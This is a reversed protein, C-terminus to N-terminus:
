LIEVAYEFQCSVNLLPMDKLGTLKSKENSNKQRVNQINKNLDDIENDLKRLVNTEAGINHEKIIEKLVNESFTLPKPFTSQPINKNLLSNDPKNLNKKSSHHYCNRCLLGHKSNYIISSRNLCRSCESSDQRQDDAVGASQNSEYENDYDLSENISDNTNVDRLQSNARKVQKEVTSTKSKNNKWTYYFYVLNSIKKDPLLENIKQFNKSHFQFGQEFIVKDEVTWEDPYPVFNALDSLAYKLNYNHWHLVGLAQELNYHYKESAINLYDEVLCFM